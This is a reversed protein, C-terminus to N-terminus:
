IGYCFYYIQHFNKVWTTETSSPISYQCLHLLDSSYQTSIIAQSLLVSNSPILQLMNCLPSIAAPHHTLASERAEVRRDDGNAVAVTRMIHALHLLCPCSTQDQPIPPPCLQHGGLFTQTETRADVWLISRM